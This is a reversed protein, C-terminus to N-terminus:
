GTTFDDETATFGLRRTDEPRIPARVIAGDANFVSLREQTSGFNAAFEKM